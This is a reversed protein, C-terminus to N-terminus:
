IGAVLKQEATCPTACVSAPWPIISCKSPLLNTDTAPCPFLISLTTKTHPSSCELEQSSYKKVRVKERNDNAVGFHLPVNVNRLHIYRREDGVLITEFVSKEVYVSFGFFRRSEHTTSFRSSKITSFCRDSRWGTTCDATRSLQLLRCRLVGQGRRVVRESYSSKWLPRRTNLTREDTEIRNGASRGDWPTRQSFSSSVHFRSDDLLCKREENVYKTSYLTDFFNWFAEISIKWSSQAHKAVNLFFPLLLSFFLEFDQKLLRQM